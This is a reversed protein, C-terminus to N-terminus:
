FAILLIYYKMFIIFSAFSLSFSGFHVRFPPRSLILETNPSARSVLPGVKPDIRPDPFNRNSLIIYVLIVHQPPTQFAPTSVPGLYSGSLTRFPCKSLAQQFSWVLPVATKFLETRENFILYIYKPRPSLPPLQPLSCPRFASLIM